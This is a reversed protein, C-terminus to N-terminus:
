NSGVPWKGRHWWTWIRHSSHEQDPKGRQNLSGTIIPEKEQPWHEGKHDSHLTPVHPWEASAMPLLLNESFTSLCSPVSLCTQYVKLSVSSGFLHFSLHNELLSSLSPLFLFYTTIIYKNAVTVKDMNWMHWDWSVLLRSETGWSM